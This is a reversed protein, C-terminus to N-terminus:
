LNHDPALSNFPNRINNNSRRIEGVALLMLRDLGSFIAKSYVAIGCNYHGGRQTMTMSLVTLKIFARMVIKKAESLWVM